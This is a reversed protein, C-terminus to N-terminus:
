AAHENPGEQRLPIVPADSLNGFGGTKTTQYHIPRPNSEGLRSGDNPPLPNVGTMLWVLNCGSRASVQRCVGEYDRPKRNELEWERWSQAKIGCAMAAEKLNWGMQHRVLVLRTAFDDATPVWDRVTSM